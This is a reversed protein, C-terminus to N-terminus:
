GTRQLSDGAPEVMILDALAAVLAQANVPKHVVLDFGAERCEAEIGPSTDATVAILPVSRAAGSQRLARAVERGHMEPLRLDILVAQYAIERARRLAQRGTQVEDVRWGAASLARSLVMRNVPHDEAVLVRDLRFRAFNRPRNRDESEVSAAAPAVGIEVTFVSGGGPAPAHSVTGGLGDVIGKVISLGLGSGPRSAAPGRRAQSFPQFLRAALEPDIGCGTDRVTAKLRLGTALRLTELGVHVEGKDTFKVANGILNDLVQRLRGSDVSVNAPGQGTFAVHLGIKRAGASPLWSAKLGAALRPLSMDEPCPAFHGSQLRGIDVLDDLLRNMDRGTAKMTDVLATAERPLKLRALLDLTGLLGSLPTRIEHAVVAMHDTEGSTEGSPKPTRSQMAGLLRLPSVMGAYRGGSTVAFGVSAGPEGAEVLQGAADRLDTDHAIVLAGRRMIRIVPRKLVTADGQARALCEVLRSRALTGLVQGDFVVPLQTRAPETKFRHLAERATAEPALPLLWEAIDGITQAAADCSDPM